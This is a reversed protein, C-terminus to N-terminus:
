KYVLLHLDPNRVSTDTFSATEQYAVSQLKANKLWSIDARNNFVSYSQMKGHSTQLKPM